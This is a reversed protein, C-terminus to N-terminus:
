KPRRRDTLSGLFLALALIAFTGAVIYGWNM